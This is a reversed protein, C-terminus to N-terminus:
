AFLTFQIRQVEIVQTCEEKLCQEDYLLKEIPHMNRELIKKAINEANSYGLSRVSQILADEKIKEFAQLSRQVVLYM